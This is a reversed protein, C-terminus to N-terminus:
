IDLGDAGIVVGKDDRILSGPSAIQHKWFPYVKLILDKAVLSVVLISEGLRLEPLYDLFNILEGTKVQYLPIVGKDTECDMVKFRETKVRVVKDPPAAPFKIGSVTIEHPTANIVKYM